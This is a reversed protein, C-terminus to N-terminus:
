PKGLLQSAETVKDAEATGRKLRRLSLLGLSGACAVAALIKAVILIYCMYSVPTVFPMEPDLFTFRTALSYEVQTGTIGYCAAGTPDDPCYFGGNGDDVAGSFHDQRSYISTTVAAASWHSPFIYYFLRLPWLIDDGAAFMGSAQMSLIIIQALIGPGVPDGLYGCMEAFVTFILSMLLLALWVEAFSAWNLDLLAYSPLVSLLVMLSESPLQLFFTTLLWMPVGFMGAKIERKIMLWSKSYHGYNAQAGALASLGLFNSLFLIYYGGVQTKDRLEILIIATFSQFACV